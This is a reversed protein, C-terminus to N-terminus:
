MEKKRRFFVKAIGENMSDLLSYYIPTFYLTVVTSILMGAIMVISMPQMLESGESQGLAMPLMALITTLTTMLIPRVRLPCAAVIAEDKSEGELRRVKIYDVLVISSNVVVGALMIIGVIVVASLEGGTVPLGFLAGTLSLPLILMVIIPMIFSEFQSALIFYVLGIAILLALYLDEFTETMDAFDGGQSASYGQPFDYADLVEQIAASATGLDLGEMDASISMQRSQDSRSISQPMLEIDVTAVTSLPIYGGTMLPIPLSRLADLSASSVDSGKLVVDFDKGDMTVTTATSGALELRVLQGVTAATLGYHSAVDHQMTVRVAPVQDGLTSSVNVIGPLQEIADTLETTIQELIGFDDGEITVNLAGGSGGTTPPGMSASAITIECGAIDALARRLEASIEETGRSRESLDVLNLTISGSGEDATYYQFTMEPVTAVAIEMARETTEVTQSLETGSPFALSISVQGQDSEPFLTSPLSLTSAIFVVLLAFSLLVTVFRRKLLFRLSKQYGAKWRALVGGLPPAKEDHSQLRRRVKTEDLLFYCLLPVLSMAIILSAILLFAITLAFDRFMMGAMGGSLGVPLFVALTTLTSAIVPLSVEKAGDVCAEFRAKGEGAHRYINELVVISNDVIMGVGLAIGGLSIMNLTIGVLDMMVFVTLISFPMSIIIAMTAGGRRLFVWVVLAALAVGLAINQLAYIATQLIYDSSEFAMTYEIAPNEAALREMAERVADSAEVENAGSSKLASLVISPVGNTKAISTQDSVARQVLALESLRVSGGSHLMIPLDRVDEVSGFRGDTTVTLTQIGSHVEGGPILVNAAGIQSSIDQTTLGYAYLRAPELSITIEETIGGYSDVRGVGDVRELAPRVTEDALQQIVSLDEGELSVIAVPIFDDLNLNQVIPDYAGDPLSIADLRERMQMSAVDMDTGEVFEVMVTSVDNASTSSISQMGPTSALASEIPRTVLEEIEEPGAGSYTTMVFAGPYSMEPMLALKLNDYQVMGFISIIVFILITTVRHRICFSAINM